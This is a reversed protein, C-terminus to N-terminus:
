FGRLVEPSSLDVYGCVREKTLMEGASGTEIVSGNKMFASNKVFNRALGLHHSILAITIREEQNLRALLEFLEVQQRVDLFTSPEGLLLLQPRQCIARAIEAKRREGGSLQFISRKSFRLIGTVEMAWVALELDEKRDWFQGASHPFRGMLVMEEVTFPFLYQTEQELYAVRKSIEAVQIEKLPKGQLLIKGSTPNLLRVALKFLTTKGAGNPEFFLTFDGASLSCNVNRLEFHAGYAFSINEWTLVAPM